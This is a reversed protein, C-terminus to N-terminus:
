PSEPPTAPRNKLEEFFCAKLEIYRARSDPAQRAALEKVEVYKACLLPDARLANRFDLPTHWYPSNIEVVHLIHTRETSDRGRGFIHHRPIGAHPVFDYGLTELAPRYQTFDDLRTIGVMLDLIPKARMGPVSTSGIHEIVHPLQRFASALAQKEAAFVRPWEDCYAVLFNKNNSLGLM